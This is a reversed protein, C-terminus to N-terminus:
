VAERRMWGLHLEPANKSPYLLSEIGGCTFGGELQRSIPQLSESRVLSLPWPSFPQLGFVSYSLPSPLLLAFFSSALLFKALSRSQSSPPPSPSEFIGAALFPQKAVPLADQFASNYPVFLGLHFACTSPPRHIKRHSFRGRADIACRSRTERRRRRDLLRSRLVKWYNFIWWPCIKGCSSYFGRILLYSHGAITTVFSLNSTERIRSSDYRFNLHISLTQWVIPSSLPIILHFQILFFIHFNRSRVRQINEECWGASPVVRSTDLSALGRLDVYAPKTLAVDHYIMRWSTFLQGCGTEPTEQTGSEWRRREERKRERRGQERGREVDTVKRKGTTPTTAFQRGTALHWVPGLSHPVLITSLHMRPDQQVAFVNRARARRTWRRRRTGEVGM